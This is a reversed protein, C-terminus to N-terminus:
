LLSNTEVSTMRWTKDPRGRPDKKGDDPLICSMAVNAATEVNDLVYQLYITVYIKSLVM